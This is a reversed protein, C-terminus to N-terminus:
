KLNLTIVRNYFKLLLNKLHDVNTDSLISNPEPTDLFKFKSGLAVEFRSTSDKDYSDHISTLFNVAELEAVVNLRNKKSLKVQKNKM